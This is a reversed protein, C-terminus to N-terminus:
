FAEPDRMMWGKGVMVADGASKGGSEVEGSEAGM